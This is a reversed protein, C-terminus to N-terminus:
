AARRVERTAIEVPQLPYRHDLFAHIFSEWRGSKLFARLQLLPEVHEELWAVSASKFRLNVVRRIASEVAGSGLSLKESRLSAYKMHSAHGSLYKVESHISKSRRGRALGRLHSLVRDLGGLALLWKSLKKYWKKRQSESLNKCASLAAHVHECAHYYDLVLRLRAEGVGLRDFLGEVRRWIWEAGDSIFEVVTASGVGVLRLLGEVQRFVTDADGFFTEYIPKFEPDPKGEADLVEITLLRPERWFTEFSWRGNKKRRGRRRTKRVHVRGGDLGLRVRKGALLGGGLSPDALVADIAEQRSELAHTGTKVALKVLVSLDCDIGDHALQEAAEQYSQCQVLQRAVESRFAPTSRNTIGLAELVPFRGTGAPGRKTRPRGTWGKRSPRFYPTRLTLLLGHRLRLSTIEWGKNDILGPYGEERFRTRALDAAHAKFDSDLHMILIARATILDAIEGAHQHLEQEFRLMQHPDEPTEMQALAEQCSAIDADIKALSRRMGTRGPYIWRTAMFPDGSKYNAFNGKM